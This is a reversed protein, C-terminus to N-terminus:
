QKRRPQFQPVDLAAARMIIVLKEVYDRFDQVLEERELLQKELTVILIKTRRMDEVLAANSEALDANSKTIAAIKADQAEIIENLRQEREVRQNISEQESKEREASLKKIEERAKAGGFYGGVIIAIASSVVLSIIEPITMKDGSPFHVGGHYRVNACYGGFRIVGAPATRGGLFQLWICSNYLLIGRSVVCEGM